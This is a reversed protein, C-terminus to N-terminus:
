SNQTIRDSSKYKNLKSVREHVCEDSFHKECIFNKLYANDEEWNNYENTTNITDSLDSETDSYTDETNTDDSEYSENDNHEFDENM